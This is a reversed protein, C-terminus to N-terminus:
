KIENCGFLLSSFRYLKSGKAGVRDYVANLPEFILLNWTCAHVTIIRRNCKEVIVRRVIDCQSSMLLCTHVPATVSKDSALCCCEILGGASFSERYKTVSEFGGSLFLQNSISEFFLFLAYQSIINTAVIIIIYLIILRKGDNSRRQCPANSLYNLYLRSNRIWRNAPIRRM